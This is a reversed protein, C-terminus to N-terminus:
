KGLLEPSSEMKSHHIGATEHLYGENYAKYTLTPPPPMEAGRCLKSTEMRFSLDTVADMVEDADVLGDAPQIMAQVFPPIGGPPLSSPM